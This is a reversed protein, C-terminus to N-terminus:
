ICGNGKEGKASKFFMLTTDGYQKKKLLQFEESVHIEEGSTAMEWILHGSNNLLKNQAILDLIKEGNKYKYPPDMFVLDFPKGKYSKLFSLVDAGVTKTQEQMGTKEINNSLIKLASSNNEVFIVFSAGRSLAELGLAGTGAFLDLTRAGMEQGQITNFLAEKVRDGTPRTLYGKPAKLRMGKAKGSIIRM